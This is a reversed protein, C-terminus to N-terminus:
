ANALTTVTGSSGRYKLAGAECYLVGGGTPNTTPAVSRNAIGIVGTGSGFQATTRIGINGAPTVTVFKTTLNSNAIYLNGTADEAMGIEFRATAALGGQLFAIRAFNSTDPSVILYNARGGSSEVFNTVNGTGFIHVNGQPTETGFGIFGGDEFLAILTGDGDEIRLDPDDLTRPRIRETAIGSVSGISGVTLAMDAQPDDGYIGVRADTSVRIGDVTNFATLALANGADLAQINVAGTSATFNKQGTITQAGSLTVYLATLATKVNAWTLAKFVNSAASDVLVLSDADVPTTKGTLSGINTSDLTKNTLTQALAEAVLSRAASAGRYTLKESDSRYWIDGAALSSPNATVGALRLAANTADAQLTKKIGATVSQATTLSMVDTLTNSGFAITKNTLTSVVSDYYTKFTAKVNAWTLKKLVNSAASDVLAFLDADAPTTKETAAVITAAIDTEVVIFEVGDETTKVAVVKGAHGTYATPVDSHSTFPHPLVGYENPGGTDGELLGSRDEEIILLTGQERKMKVPMLARLAVRGQNRAQTLTSDVMQIYVFDPREPVTITVSGDANIRGVTGYLWQDREAKQWWQGLARELRHGNM